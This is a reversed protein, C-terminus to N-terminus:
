KVNLLITVKFDPNYTVSPWEFQYWELAQTSNGIPRGYYSHSQWAHIWLYFSINALFWSIKWIGKGNSAGTRPRPTRTLTNGDQNTHFFLSPPAVWRHFFKQPCTYTHIYIHINLCFIPMHCISLRVFLCTAVAYDVSHMRTARYFCHVTYVVTCHGRWQYVFRCWFNMLTYLLSNYFFLCDVIVVSSVNFCIFWIKIVLCFLMNQIWQLEYRVVFFVKFICMVSIVFM